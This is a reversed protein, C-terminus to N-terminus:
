SDIRAPQMFSARAQALTQETSHLDAAVLNAWPAAPATPEAVTQATPVPKAETAQQPSPPNDLQPGTPTPTPSPTDGPIESPHATPPAPLATEAATGTASSQAPPLSTNTARGISLPKEHHSQRNRWAFTLLLLLLVVIGTLMSLAMTQQRNATQLASIQQLNQQGLTHLQTDLQSQQREIGRIQRQITEGQDIQTRGTQMTTQRLQDIRTHVRQLSKQLEAINAEAPSAVTRESAWVFLACLSLCAGMLGGRLNALHHRPAGSQM